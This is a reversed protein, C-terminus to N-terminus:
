KGTSNVPVAYVRVGSLPNRGASNGPTLNSVMPRMRPAYLATKAGQHHFVVSRPAFLGSNTGEHIPNNGSEYFLRINKLSSVGFGM